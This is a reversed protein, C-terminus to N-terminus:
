KKKHKLIFSIVIVSFIFTGIIFLNNSTYEGVLPGEDSEAIRGDLTYLSLDDLTRFYAIVPDRYHVGLDIADFDEQHNVWWSYDTIIGSYLNTMIIDEYSDSVINHVKISTIHFSPNYSYTYRIGSYSYYGHHNEIMELLQTGTVLFELLNNEFPIVSVVDGLTINGARFDDRFGGGRNTVGFNIYDFQYLFGDTVLNGIASEPSYDYVYESTYSIVEEANIFNVWYDVVQQVESDPTVGGEINNIIAGEKDVVTKTTQDVSLIIKVYQTAYHGAMAIISDGVSTVTPGGGHGGLFVDIDLDDVASALNILTSPVEHALVIVVDAGAAIVDDHYKRVSTEFNWFDFDQTIKPHASTYTSTTTLGIIGINIGGHNQVVYPVTFNALDTTGKDYINCSLIPFNAMEKRKELWEVGFDFEHNGICSASFNMTNMVDIVAEGKSLTSVAPGTNQDGGSLLIFTDNDYTYGEQKFYGMYTAVGGFGEHPELWGHLDNIHLITLNVLSSDEVIPQSLSNVYTKINLENTELSLKNEALSFSPTTFLIVIVFIVKFKTFFCIRRM